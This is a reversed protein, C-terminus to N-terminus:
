VKWCSSHVQVKTSEESNTLEIISFLWLFNHKFIYVNTYISFQSDLSTSTQLIPTVYYTQRVRPIRIISQCGLKLKDVIIHKM